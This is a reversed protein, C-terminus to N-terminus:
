RRHRNRGLSSTALGLRGLPMVLLALLLLVLLQGDSRESGPLLSWLTLALAVFCATGALWVSWYQRILHPAVRRAACVAFGYKGVAALAVLWVVARVHELIWGVLPSRELLMVLVGAAMILTIVAYSFLRQSGSLGIWLNAVMSRWTLVYGAIVMLTLTVYIAWASRIPMPWQEIATPSLSVAHGGLSLLVGIYVLVLAWSSAAAVAAVRVKSAVIDAESLPRVALFAPISLDDSWPMPKSFAMGVPIALVVPLALTALVLRFTEGPDGRALWSLPAIVLVLVGGVFLPLLMGSCQWEFWFQASAASSFSGRRAPLASTARGVVPWTGGTGLGSGFRLRAIHRWAVLFAALALLVVVGSLVLESRWPSPEAAPFSPLLGVALLATGIVALVLLRLPGLRELIWLVAHHFTMFAALLIGIFPANSTGGGSFPERWTLYLLEVALIGAIVPVAVLHLSPVPLTFLRRPFGGLDKGRSSETYTFVGFLILFSLMGLVFTIPSPGGDNGTDSDAFHALRGAASMAIIALVWQRNRQWIEWVLAATASRM